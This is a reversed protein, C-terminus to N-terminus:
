IIVGFFMKSGDIFCYYHTYPSGGGACSYYTFGWGYYNKAATLSPWNTRGLEDGPRYCTPLNVGTYSVIGNISSEAIENGYKEVNDHGQASVDYGVSSISILLSLIIAVTIKRIKKM